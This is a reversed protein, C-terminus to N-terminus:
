YKGLTCHTLYDPRSHWNRALHSHKEAERQPDYEAKVNVSSVETVLRKFLQVQRGAPERGGERLTRTMLCVLDIM